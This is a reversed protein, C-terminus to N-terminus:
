PGDIGHSHLLYGSPTKMYWISFNPHHFEWSFPFDYFEMTGFWWGPKILIGYLNLLVGWVGQGRTIPKLMCQVGPVFDCGHWSKNKAQKRRQNHSEHYGHLRDLESNSTWRKTTIQSRATSGLLFPGPSNRNPGGEIALNGLELNM